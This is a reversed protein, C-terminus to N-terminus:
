VHFLMLYINKIFESSIILKAITGEKKSSAALVYMKKANQM